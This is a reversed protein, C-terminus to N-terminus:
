MSIFKYMCVYMCLCSYVNDYIVCSYVYIRIHVYMYVFVCSYAHTMIIMMVRRMGSVHQICCTYALAQAHIHVEDVAEVSAGLEVLVRVTELHGRESALLLATKGYEQSCECTIVTCLDIANSSLSCACSYM